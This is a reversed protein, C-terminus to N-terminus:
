YAGGGSSGSGSSGGQAGGSQMTSGFSAPIATDFSKMYRQWSYGAEAGLMPLEPAAQTNSRQLELWAQTSHGIETNPVNASQARAAPMMALALAAAAFMAKGLRAAFLTNEIHNTKM